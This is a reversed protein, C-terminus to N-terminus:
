IINSLLNELIDKIEDNTINNKYDIELFNIGREECKIRKINDKYQQYELSEETMGYEKIIKYHQPGQCEIAIKLEENYCDLELPRNTKSNKLWNPKIKIFDKGTIKKVINRVRSEFYNETCKPCGTKYHSDPRQLFYEKHKNCFIKVKTRVNKYNVKEYNYKNGHIERAKKIFEETNCRIVGCLHCGHKYHSNPTQLFYGKHKNCFIKVKINSKKYCVENYNYDNGHIEKAKKIFEETNYQLKGRCKACGSYLLHHKVKQFFFEKHKKCFIKLETNCGKYDFESYDYCDGYINRAKKLFDEVNCKIRGCLACGYGSLHKNPNQLFYEKHKNCFIKVKTKANKYEVKSYNYKEKHIKKAKKIFEESNSILRGSCKPCGSGALHSYPNQFFYEKHKNCFIEVKSICDIYVLKDYNYQNKHIKKAKKIFEETNLKVKGGCKPCGCCALHYGAKQFFYEKHKNCFIEVKSICNIYITRDYKYKDGHIKRSREIFVETKSKGVDEKKLFNSM